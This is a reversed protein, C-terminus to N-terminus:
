ANGGQPGPWPKKDSPKRLTENQVFHVIGAPGTERFRRRTSFVAIAPRNTVGRAQPAACCCGEATRRRCVAQEGACISCAPGIAGDEAPRPTPLTPRTHSSIRAASSAMLSRARSRPGCVPFPRFVGYEEHVAATGLTPSPRAGPRSLPRPGPVWGTTRRPPLKVPAYSPLAYPLAQIGAVKRSKKLVPNRHGLTLDFPFM